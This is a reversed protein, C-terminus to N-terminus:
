DWSPFSLPPPSSSFSSTNVLWCGVVVAVVVAAIILVISQDVIVVSGGGPTVRGSSQGGNPERGLDATTFKIRSVVVFLGPNPEHDCRKTAARDWCSKPAISGM